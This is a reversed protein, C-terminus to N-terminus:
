KVEEGTLGVTLQARPTRRNLSKAELSITYEGQPVTFNDAKFWVEKENGYRDIVKATTGDFEIFDSSMLECEFMVTGNGIRVTPNKLVEYAM